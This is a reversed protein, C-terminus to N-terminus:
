LPPEGTARIWRITHDDMSGVDTDSDETDNTDQDHEDM